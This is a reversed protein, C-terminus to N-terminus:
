NNSWFNTQMIDLCVAKIILSWMILAWRKNSGGIETCNDKVLLHFDVRNTEAFSKGFSWLSEKLNVGDRPTGM